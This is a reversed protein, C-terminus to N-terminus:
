AYRPLRQGPLVDYPPRWGPLAAVRGLWAHMCPHSSSLDYGIEDAPFSLYACMSLDVITAHDEIVFSRSTVQEELFGFFHDVWGCLFARVAPDTSPTFARRFCYLAMFGSLKQNNWLLWRLVVSRDDEGIDGFREYRDALRLPIPGTQTLMIGDVELM